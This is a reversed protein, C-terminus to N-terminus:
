GVSAAVKVFGPPLPVPLTVISSQADLLQPLMRWLAVSVPM